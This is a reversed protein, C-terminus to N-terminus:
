ASFSAGASDPSAFGFFLDVVAELVFFFVEFFYNESITEAKTLVSLIGSSRRRIRNVSATTTMTRSPAAMVVGPTLAATKCSHNRVANVSLVPPLRAASNFKNLPPASSFQAIKESPMMGYM